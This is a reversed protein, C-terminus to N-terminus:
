NQLKREIIEEALALSERGKNPKMVQEKIYSKM